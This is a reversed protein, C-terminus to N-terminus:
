QYAKLHEGTHPSMFATTCVLIPLFAQLEASYFQDPVTHNICASWPASSCDSRNFATGVPCGHPTSAPVCRVYGCLVDNTFGHPCSCNAATPGYQSCMLPNGAADNAIAIHNSSAPIARINNSRIILQKLGPANNMLELPLVSIRNHSLDLESIFFNYQLASGAVDVILTLNCQPGCGGGLEAGGASDQLTTPILFRNFAVVTAPTAGTAIAIVTLTSGALYTDGFRFFAPFEICGTTPFSVDVTIDSMDFGPSFFNPDMSVVPNHSFNAVLAGGKSWGSLESSLMPLQNWSVDITLDASFGVSALIDNLSALSNNVLRLGVAVSASLGSNCDQLNCFIGNVYSMQNSDFDLWRRNM